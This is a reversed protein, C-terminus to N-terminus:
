SKAETQIESLLGDPHFSHQVDSPVRVAHENSLENLIKRSGLEQM